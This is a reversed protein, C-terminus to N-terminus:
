HEESRNQWSAVRGPYRPLRHLPLGSLKAFRREVAVSGGSEDVVGLPQHFWIATSPRRRLILGRAARAEPESLPRPGSYHLDGRVGLPRWRWPFNRNLDVGHANQRTGAAVGDPNLDKVVLLLGERPPRASALRQAIPMGASEDGHIDGVVLVSRENDLDGLAVAFIRRGLVSRGLYLRRRGLPDPSSRAARHAVLGSGSPPRNSSKHAALAFIAVGAAVLGLPLLRLAWGRAARTPPPEHAPPLGASRGDAAAPSTSGGM